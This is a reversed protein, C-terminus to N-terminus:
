TVGMRVMRTVGEELTVTPTHYENFLSTDAVRNSVGEPKSIDNTISPKYGVVKAAIAALEMFSTGLGSGLNMATYGDIGAALRKQTGLVLDDVHIFDRVQRGTGWVLIPDERNMARRVISPFPYEISQDHSYGSFPRLCLTNVGYKSAKWALFEGVMKTFGYMEDPKGWINDEPKFDDETLWRPSNHKGQYVVPYVASSSPYVVIPPNDLSSVWRFLASDLELSRANFMPDQEIKTRGGVPAAFHYVIDFPKDFFENRNNLFKMFDQTYKWYRGDEWRSHPNSFDDVAVITNDEDELNYRLFARGLFGAAGTILIRV